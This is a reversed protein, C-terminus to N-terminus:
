GGQRTTTRRSRYLSNASYSGRDIDPASRHQVLEWQDKLLMGWNTHHFSDQILGPRGASERWIWGSRVSYSMSWWTSEVMRGATVVIDERWDVGVGETAAAIVLKRCQQTCCGLLSSTKAIWDSASWRDDVHVHREFTAFNIPSRLYSLSWDIFFFQLTQFKKHLVSILKVIVTGLKHCYSTLM